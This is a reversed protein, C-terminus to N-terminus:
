LVELLLIAEDHRLEMNRQESIGIFNLNKLKEKQSTGKPINQLNELKARKKSLNRAKKGTIKTKTNRKGNQNKDGKPM